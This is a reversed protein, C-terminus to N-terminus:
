KSFLSCKRPALLEVRWIDPQRGFLELMGQIAQERAAPESSGLTEEILTSTSEIRHTLSRELQQQQIRLILFTLLSLGVITAGVLPVIAKLRWSLRPRYPAGPM